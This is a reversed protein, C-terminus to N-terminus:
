GRAMSCPWSDIAALIRLYRRVNFQHAGHNLEQGLGGDNLWVECGRKRHHPFYHISCNATVYGVRQGAVPRV